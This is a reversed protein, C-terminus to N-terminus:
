GGCGGITVKVEKKAMFTKGGGTPVRICVYPLGELQKLDRGHLKSVDTYPRGTKEIFPTDARGLEITRRFYAALEDLCRRQYDKLQFPM